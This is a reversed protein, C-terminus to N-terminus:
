IKRSETCTFYIIQKEQSLKEIVALANELKLDDFYAFPDDLIIFPTENEYLSDILALRAALAFLDKTGRSYAATDRLTGHENKMVEFSTNMAFSESQENGIVSVYKDFAKKTRSLYKSTLNDKAEGLFSKTMLIIELKKELNSARESLREKEATLEDIREIEDSILSLRQESITREKELSSIIADADSSKEIESEILPAEALSNVEDPNIGNNYAFESMEQKKSAITKKLAELEFINKAIEDFPKQSLTPFRTLFAEIRQKNENAQLILRNRNENLSKQSAELASYIDKKRFIENIEKAPSATNKIGFLGLFQNAEIELETKRQESALLETKKLNLEKKLEDTRKNYSKAKGAQVFLIIALVSLVAFVPSLLLSLAVASTLSLIGFILFSACSTRKASKRSDDSVGNQKDFYEKRIREEEKKAIEIKAPLQRANEYDAESLEASFFSRLEPLEAPETYGDNEIIRNSNFWLEKANDLEEHSPRGNIFFAELEKERKVDSNLADRMQRYQIAYARKIQARDREKSKLVIGDKEKKAQSLKKHIEDLHAKENEFDFKMRELDFIERDLKSIKQKVDGIEGSGGRKYYLKRQKELLEIADDMVSLDGDCGVLDSLKASVTKNENKGSLNAESLFVTREFGDADIGFLEEGVNESYDASEKGSNMDYLKFVDDSAKPMFTREIRYSKGDAEFSLSGGCRGGQWPMYHKRDNNELRQRKTDDLGYLMAKIFVALTTKGYGNNKKISNLGTSFNYEFDSLKGFNEIYCEILRM